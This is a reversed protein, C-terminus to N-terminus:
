LLFPRLYDRSIGNRVGLITLLNRVWNACSHLIEWQGAEVAAKVLIVATWRGEVTRDQLLSTIRTKLKQVLLFAETDTASGKANLATSLISRCNVLSTALCAAIPPLDKVPVSMLRHVATRLVTIDAM